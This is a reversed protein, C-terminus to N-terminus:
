FIAQQLSLQSIINIRRAFNFILDYLDSVNELTKIPFDTDMVPMAWALPRYGEVYYHMHPQDPELWKGAYPILFSPVHSNLEEPNKHGGKFDIRLLGTFNNSELHHLTTKLIIKQNTTIVLRFNCSSDELSILDISNKKQKLDIVQNPDKLVKELELLYKVDENTLM